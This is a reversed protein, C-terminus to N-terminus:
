FKARNSLPTQRVGALSWVEGVHNKVVWDRYSLLSICAHYAARHNLERELFESVDPVVVYEFFQQPTEIRFSTM